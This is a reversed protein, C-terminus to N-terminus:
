RRPPTTDDLIEIGLNPARALRADGTVLAIDLRQAIAVYLGDGITVNHRM